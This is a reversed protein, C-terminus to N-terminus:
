ERGGILIVREGPRWSAPHADTVVRMSGDRLRITIEYPRALKAEIVGGVGAVNVEAPADPAETRRTSAIRGCEACGYATAPRAGIAPAAVAAPLSAAGFATGAGLASTALYGIAIGGAVLAALGGILLPRHRPKSAQTNMDAKKLTGLGPRRNPM